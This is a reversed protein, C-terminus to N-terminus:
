GKQLESRSRWVLEPFMQEMTRHAKIGSPSSLLPLNHVSTCGRHSRNIESGWRTRLRERRWQGNLIQRMMSKASGPKVATQTLAENVPNLMNLGCNNYLLLLLAGLTCRPEVHIEGWGLQTFAGWIGGAAWYKNSKGDHHSGKEEAQVQACTTWLARTFAMVTLKTSGKSHGRALTVPFLVCYLFKKNLVSVVDQIIAGVGKLTNGGLQHKLQAKLLGESM